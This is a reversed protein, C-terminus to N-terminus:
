SVSNTSMKTRVGYKIYTKAERVVVVEVDIQRVSITSDMGGKTSVTRIYAWSLKYKAEDTFQHPSIYTLSLILYVLLM